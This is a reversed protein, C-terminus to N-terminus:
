FRAGKTNLRIRFVNMDATIYLMSGDDGFTCNSTRSEVPITGLLRGEPSIVV